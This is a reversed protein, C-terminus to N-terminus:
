PCRRFGKNDSLILQSRRRVELKGFQAIALANSSDIILDWLDEIFALLEDSDRVLLTAVKRLELVLDLIHQFSDILCAAVYHFAGWIFSRSYGSRRVGNFHIRSLDRPFLIQRLKEFILCGSIKISALTIQRYLGFLIEVDASGDIDYVRVFLDYLVDILM